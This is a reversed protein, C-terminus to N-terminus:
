LVPQLQGSACISVRGSPFVGSRKEGGEKEASNKVLREVVRRM